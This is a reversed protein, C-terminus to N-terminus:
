LYAHLYAYVSYIRSHFPLECIVGSVQLKRPIQFYLLFFFFLFFVNFKTPRKRHKCRMSAGHTVGAYICGFFNLHTSCNYNEKLTLDIKIQANELTHVEYKRSFFFNSLM